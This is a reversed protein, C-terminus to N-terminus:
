YEFVTFTAAMFYYFIICCPIKLYSVLVVICIMYNGLSLDGSILAERWSDHAANQLIYLLRFTDYVADKYTYFVHDAMHSVFLIM